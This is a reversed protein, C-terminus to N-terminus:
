DKKVQIHRKKQNSFSFTSRTCKQVSSSILFPGKKSLEWFEMALTALLYAPQLIWPAVTKLFIDTGMGAALIICITSGGPFTDNLTLMVPCWYCSWQRDDLGERRGKQRWKWLVTLLSLLLDVAPPPFFRLLELYRVPTGEWLLPLSATSRMLTTGRLM